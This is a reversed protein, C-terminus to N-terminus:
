MKQTMFLEVGMFLKCGFNFTFGLLQQPIDGDASSPRVHPRFEIFDRCSSRSIVIFDLILFFFQTLVQNLCWQDESAPAELQHLCQPTM